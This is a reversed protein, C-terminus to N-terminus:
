LVAGDSRDPHDGGVTAVPQRGPLLERDPDDRDNVVALALVTCWADVRCLEDVACRSSEESWFVLETGAHRARRRLAEPLRHRRRPEVEFTAVRPVPGTPAVARCWTDAWARPSRLRPRPGTGVLLLDVRGAPHPLPGTAPLPHLESVLYSSLQDTLAKAVQLVGPGDPEYLILARRPACATRMSMDNRGVPQM